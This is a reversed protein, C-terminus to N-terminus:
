EWIRNSSSRVFPAFHEQNNGLVINMIMSDHSYHSKVQIQNLFSKGKVTTFIGVILCYIHETQMYLRRYVKVLVYNEITTENSSSESTEPVKM